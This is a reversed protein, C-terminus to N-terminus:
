INNKILKELIQNSKFYNERAKLAELQNITKQVLGYSDFSGKLLSLRDEISTKEEQLAQLENGAESALNKLPSECRIIDRVTESSLFISSLQLRANVCILEKDLDLYDVSMIDTQKLEKEIQDKSSKWEQTKREMFLRAKSPIPSTPNEKVSSIFSSIEEMKQKNELHHDELQSLEQTLGSVIPTLESSSIPPLEGEISLLSRSYVLTKQFVDRSLDDIQKQKNESSIKNLPHLPKYSRFSLLSSSIFSM